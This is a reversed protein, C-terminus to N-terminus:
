TVKSEVGLTISEMAAAFRRSRLLYVVPSVVLVMVAASTALTTYSMSACKECRGLNFVFDLECVSCLVGDYGRRCLDTRNRGSRGLRRRAEASATGVCADEIPCKFLNFSDDSPRWYGKLVALQSLPVGSAATAWDLGKPCDVCVGNHEFSPIECPTCVINGRATAEEAMGPPCEGLIIDTDIADVMLSTATLKLQTLTGPDAFIALETFTALGAECIALPSLLTANSRGILEAVVTSVGDSRVRQGYADLLEVRLPADM